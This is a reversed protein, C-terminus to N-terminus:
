GKRFSASGTPSDGIKQAAEARTRYMGVIALEIQFREQRSLPDGSLQQVLLESLTRQAPATLEEVLLGQGQSNRFRFRRTKHDTHRSVTRFPTLM